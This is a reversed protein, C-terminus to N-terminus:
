SEVGALVESKAWGDRWDTAGAAWAKRIRHIRVVDFRGRHDRARSDVDVGIVRGSSLIGDFARPVIDGLGGAVFFPVTSRDLLAAIADPDVSQGTSGVHGSSTKDVLFADAGAREYAGIFRRELCGDDDVHLVKVIRSGPLASRLESVVRPPQYAHLQFTAQSLRDRVCALEHLDDSFTVVVPEVNASRRCHQVLDVLLDTTMSHRGGRVRWWLGILDVGAAALLDLDSTTTAGCVKLLM